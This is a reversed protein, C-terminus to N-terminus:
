LIINQCNVRVLPRVYVFNQCNVRV